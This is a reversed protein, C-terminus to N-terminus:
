ETRPYLRPHCTFGHLYKVVRATGSRKQPATEKRLYAVDLTRAVAGRLSPVESCFREPIARATSSNLLKVQVSVRKDVFPIVM